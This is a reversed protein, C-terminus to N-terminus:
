YPIFIKTAPDLRMINGGTAQIANIEPQSVVSALTVVLNWAQRTVNADAAQLRLRKSNTVYAVNKIGTVGDMLSDPITTGATGAVTRLSTNNLM